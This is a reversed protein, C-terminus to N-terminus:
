FKNPKTFVLNGGHSYDHSIIRIIDIHKRFIDKYISFNIMKKM